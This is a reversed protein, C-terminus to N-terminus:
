QERRTVKTGKRYSAMFMYVGRPICHMWPVDPLLFFFVM